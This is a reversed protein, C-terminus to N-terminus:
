VAPNILEAQLKMNRIDDSAPLEFIELNFFPVVALIHDFIDAVVAEYELWVTTNTFMYLEIPLGKEGPALHRVMLTMDHNIDRKSRTYAEIYKRFLGVNTLRRGNIPNSTDVQNAENDQVIETLKADIYPRLLQIERLRAIEEESAFHISSLKIHIARKLRRGGSTQMGRWNRFSDSILYYTPITTISKDFNQVKVTNLNIQIVNGDAGFKPMEIWDGIRVMDNSSVQVSAVLGLITDKFILMLVASAAGLGAIFSSASVGTILSFLMVAAISYLFLQIVQLYSDVPKDRFLEKRKLYDRCSKFFSDFISVFIVILYLELGRDITASLTKYDKLIYILSSKIIVYPVLRSIRRMVKNQVLYDDFHTSTRQALSHLVNVLLKRTLYFALWSVLSVVLLLFAINIYAAWQKDVGLDVILRYLWKSFLQDYTM